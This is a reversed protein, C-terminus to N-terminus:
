TPSSFGHYLTLNTGAGPSGSAPTPATAVCCIVCPSTASLGVGSGELCSLLYENPPQYRVYVSALSCFYEFGYENSSLSGLATM